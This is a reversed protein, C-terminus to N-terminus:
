QARGESFFQYGGEPTGRWNLIYRPRAPNPEIQQRLQWILQYLSAEEVEEWEDPWIHMILDTKTLPERPHQLFYLLATQQQPSLELRTPGQWFEGTVKDRWMRGRGREQVQAVFHALLKGKFRWQSGVQDCFGKAALRALTDGYRTQLDQYIKQRTQKVQGSERGARTQQKELESLVFKEEETLGQWLEVLRNQLAQDALLPVAWKRMAPKDATLRWWRCTEKLLAPYGGTLELMLNKETKSPRTVATRTEEDILRLADEQTMPGLWCTHIDLLESLERLDIAGTLYVIEHRLGVLYCLNNKFSDRLGRLTDFMPPTAMQCFNDFRDMVLVVRIQTAALLFLLERLASQPLFPDQERQNQRYVGEILEQLHPEFAEGAEYFARLIIRYFTSLDFTPMNNFDVAIPIVVQDPNDLHQKLAEPHHCMFKLFNSKGAGALGIVAGSEGANIWAAIIEMQKQRYNLAYREPKM